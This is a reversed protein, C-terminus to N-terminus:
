TAGVNLTGVLDTIPSIHEDMALRSLSFATKKDSFTLEGEETIFPGMSRVVLDM